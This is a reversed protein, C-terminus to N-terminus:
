GHREGLEPRLDDEGGAPAGGGGGNERRIRDFRARRTKLDAVRIADEYTMWVALRRAFVETLRAGPDLTRVRRVRALFREAYAPDQYDILRAVAEGLVRHLSAPFEKEIRDTLAGFTKGARGLAAARQAKLESWVPTPTVPDDGDGGGEVIEMGAKFGALNREVAVGGDRIATEFDSAVMPLVRTAALAGLLIANVESQAERAAEL